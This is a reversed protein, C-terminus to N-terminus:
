ALFRDIDDIGDQFIATYDSSYYMQLQIIAERARSLAGAELLMKVPIVMTMMQDIFSDDKNLEINKMSLLYACEDAIYKGQACRAFYAEKQKINKYELSYSYTIEQKQEENPETVFQLTHVTGSYDTVQMEFM